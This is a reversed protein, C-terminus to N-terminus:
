RQQLTKLLQDEISGSEAGNAESEPWACSDKQWIRIQKDPNVEAWKPHGHVRLQPLNARIAKVLRGLSDCREKGYSNQSQTFDFSILVARVAVTPVTRTIFDYDSPDLTATEYEQALEPRDLALFHLKKVAEGHESYINELNKFLKVPKGGVFIMADAKGTLVALVAEPPALRLMEAPKINYIAFLNMATLWSGSGEEGIAVRKGNLEAFDKIDAGALVHAEEQYFPLVMRLNSAFRRSEAQTSRSLFGLVDSQVIGLAANERSNIRKINEISGNSEKIDLEVGNGAAVKAIDNGFAYYTGTVPGTVVGLPKEARAPVCLVALALVSLLLTRM